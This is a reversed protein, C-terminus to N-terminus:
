RNLVYALGDVFHKEKFLSQEDHQERRVVISM